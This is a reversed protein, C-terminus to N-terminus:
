NALLSGRKKAALGVDLNRSKTLKRQTHDWPFQQTYLSWDEVAYDQWAIHETKSDEIFQIVDLDQDGVKSVKVFM